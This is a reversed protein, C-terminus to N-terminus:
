GAISRERSGCGPLGSWAFGSSSYALGTAAGRTRWALPTKETWDSLLSNMRVQRRKVGHGTTVAATPRAGKQDRIPYVRRAPLGAASMLDVGSHDVGSRAPIKSSQARCTSPREARWETRCPATLM